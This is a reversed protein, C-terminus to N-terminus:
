RRVGHRDLWAIDAAGAESTLAEIARYRVILDRGFDTLRAAAGGQGHEPTAVAPVDFAANVQQVFLWARRYSIGMAEAARSLSGETEVLELLRIKGPGIRAGSPLDIQVKITLRSGGSAPAPEAPTSTRTIRSGAASPGATWSTPSRSDPAATM